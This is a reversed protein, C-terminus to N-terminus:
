PTQRPRPPYTRPFYAPPSRAPPPLGGTLFVGRFGPSYMSPHPVACVGGYSQGLVSWPEDDGVLQRRILEADRVISDARFRMLYDAQARASGRRALTRPLVVSSRGNGRSDLLLVDYDDLARKLWDSNKVRGPGPSGAGGQLFVLWARTQAARESNRVARAFIALQEGSPTDHDLPVTFEYESVEMGHHRVSALTRLNM